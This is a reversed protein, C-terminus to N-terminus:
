VNVAVAVFAAPVDSAESGEPATLGDIAIGPVGGAGVATAPSPCAVTVTAGPEPPAGADYVTVALGPPLVQVTTTGAVEQM